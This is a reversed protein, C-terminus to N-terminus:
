LFGDKKHETEQILNFAAKRARTLAMRVSKPQIQLEAAIQSSKLDLIYRAELLYRTKADLMSWVKSLLEMEEDCILKFDMAQQDDDSIYEICDDFDIASHRKRYRLENYATHRCTVIVYDVLHQQDLTKLLDIKDILKECASQVVDDELWQDETIKRITYHMLGQYQFYINTMYERDSADEIALICCPIM